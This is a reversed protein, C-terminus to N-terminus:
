KEKFEISLNIQSNITQEGELIKMTPNEKMAMMVPQANRFIPSPFESPQVTVNMIEKEKLALAELVIEAQLLANKCADKLAKLRAEELITDSPRLTVQRLQNAGAEFAKGIFDGAIDSPSSFNIDIAGRYSKIEPPNSSTYEPYIEMMGTELKEIKPSKLGELLQSLRKALTSQVVLATREEVEIGLRVDAIDAKVTV